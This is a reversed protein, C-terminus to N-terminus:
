HLLELSSLQNPKKSRNPAAKHNAAKSLLEEINHLSWDVPGALDVYRKKFIDVIPSNRAWERPGKPSPCSKKNGKWGKRRALGDKAFAQPALGLMLNYRRMCDQLTTPLGGVFLMEPTYISIFTEIDPWSIELASNQRLTNYLHSVYFQDGPEHSQQGQMM